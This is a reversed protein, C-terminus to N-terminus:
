RRFKLKIEEQKKQNKLQMMLNNMQKRQAAKLIDLLFKQTTAEYKSLVVFLKLKKNNEDKVRKDSLLSTKDLEHFFGHKVQSTKYESSNQKSVMKFKIAHNNHLTGPIIRKMYKGLNQKTEPM